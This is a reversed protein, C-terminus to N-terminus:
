VGVCNRALREIERQHDADTVDLFHHRRGIGLSAWLAAGRIVNHVFLVRGSLGNRQEPLACFRYVQDLLECIEFDWTAVVENVEASFMRQREVLRYIERDRDTSSFIVEVHFAVVDALTKGQWLAPDALEKMQEYRNRRYIELVTLLIAQKDVFRHYISGVSVGSARSIETVSTEDFGQTVFLDTACRLIKELSARSRDQAPAFVWASDPLWDIRATM